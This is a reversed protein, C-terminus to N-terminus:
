DSEDGSGEYLRKNGCISAFNAFLFCNIPYYINSHSLRALCESYLSESYEVIKLASSARDQIKGSSLLVSLRNGEDGFWKYFFQDLFFPSLLNLPSVAPAISIM